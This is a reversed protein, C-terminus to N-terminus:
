GRASRRPTTSRAVDSGATAAAVRGVAGGGDASDGGGREDDQLGGSHHLSGDSCGPNAAAAAGRERGPARVGPAGKSRRRGGQAVKAQRGGPRCSENPITGEWRSARRRWRRRRRKGRATFSNGRCVRWSPAGGGSTRARAPGRVQRRVGPAHRLEVPGHRQPRREAVHLGQIAVDADRSTDHFALQGHRWDVNLYEILFGAVVHRMYNPVYGTAWLERMGADVRPYGTRGFQWARLADDSSAVMGAHWRENM